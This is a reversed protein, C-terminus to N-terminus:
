RGRLLRSPLMRWAVGDRRLLHWLAAAGHIAVLLFLIRTLLVHVPGITEFDIYRAGIGTVPLLLLVAYLAWHNVCAGIRVASHLTRDQAPAKSAVRLLIRLVVLAGILLGLFTHIEHLFLDLRSPELGAVHDAHSREIGGSSWIQVMVLGVVTWHLAKQWASYDNHVPVIMPRSATM